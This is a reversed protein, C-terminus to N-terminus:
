GPLRACRCLRVRTYNLPLVDAEWASFAPEIGTVRELRALLRWLWQPQNLWLHWFALVADGPAVVSYTAAAQALVRQFDGPKTNLRARLESISPVDAEQLLFVMEVSTGTPNPGPHEEIFTYLKRRGGALPHGCGTQSPSRPRDLLMRAAGVAGGHHNRAGRVAGWVGQFLRIRVIRLPRSRGGLAKFRQARAVGEPCGLESALRSLAEDQRAWIRLSPSSTAMELDDLAKDLEAPNIEALECLKLRWCARNYRANLFPLPTRPENALVSSAAAPAELRLSPPTELLILQRGYYHAIRIQDVLEHLSKDKTGLASDLDRSAAWASKLASTAPEDSQNGGAKALLAYNYWAVTLNFLLRLELAPM